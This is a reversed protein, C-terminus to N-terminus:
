FAAPQVRMTGGQDVATRFTKRQGAQVAVEVQSSGSCVSTPTTLSLIHEGPAAYIVVAQGRRLDAVAVGNLSVRHTCESGRIGTDRKVLIIGTGASARTLPESLITGPETKESPTPSTACGSLAAVSLGVILALSTM